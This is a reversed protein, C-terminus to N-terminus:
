YGIEVMVKSSTMQPLIIGNEPGIKFAYEKGNIKVEKISYEKSEIPLPYLVDGESSNKISFYLSILQPNVWAGLYLYNLMGHEVNHYSSKFQNAKIGIRVEGNESVAMHSDGNVRDMFNNEWFDAARLFNDVFPEKEGLSTLCLDLMMGYAQIWWYTFDSHMEPKEKGIGAYWLGSNENFGYRHVNDSLMKGSSLYDSNRNLLYTRVLMWALEINHGVNIENEDSRQELYNWDRDFSELIWGSKKDVMKEMCTDLIKEMQRLYKSDHTALYLYILYGSVPALQSSFSKVDNQLSWDRSLNDFYGGSSADWVKEELISNSRHIFDYVEEDKTVFYYMALGTLVYVQVFTSKNEDLPTGDPKLSNFWGGHEEDWSYDILYDYLRDAMVLNAEDGSILYASAYSFLHRAIMSPFRVSDSDAKWNEDLTTFFSNNASDVISNTWYPLVDRLVQTKWYDPGLYDRNESEKLSPNQCSICCILILTLFKGSIMFRSDNIM